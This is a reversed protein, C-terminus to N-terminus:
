GAVAAATPRSADKPKSRLALTLAVALVWLAQLVLVVITLAPAAFLGGLAVAVYGAGLGVAVVAFGHPLLDSGFLVAGTGLLILPSPVLPFVHIFASVLDYATVATSPHGNVAAQALVIEALGEVAVVSLLVGCGVSVLTGALSDRGGAFRVLLLFFVVSLLSGASQLWAGLLWTAHYASGTHVVAATSSNLAPLPPAAAFYVVLLASGVVGCATAWLRQQRYWVSRQAMSV